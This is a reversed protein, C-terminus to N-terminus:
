SVSLCVYICVYVYREKARPSTWAQSMKVVSKDINDQIKKNHSHTKRSHLTWGEELMAKEGKSLAANNKTPTRISGNHSQSSSELDAKSFRAGVVTSPDTMVSLEDPEAFTVGRGTGSMAGASSNYLAEQKSAYRADSRIVAEDYQNKLSRLKMSFLESIRLRDKELKTSEEDLFALARDYEDEDYAAAEEELLMYRAELEEEILTLEKNTVSMEEELNKMTTALQKQARVAENGGTAEDEEAAGAELDVIGKALADMDMSAVSKRSFEASAAEAKAAAKGLLLEAKMKSLPKKTHAAYQPQRGGITTVNMEPNSIERLVAILPADHINDSVALIETKTMNDWGPKNTNTSNTPVILNVKSKQIRVASSLLGM